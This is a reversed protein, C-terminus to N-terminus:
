RRAINRLDRLGTRADDVIRDAIELELAPNRRAPDAANLSRARRVARDDAVSIIYTV